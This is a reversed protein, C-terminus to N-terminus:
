KKLCFEIESIIKRTLAEPNDSDRISRGIVLYHAGMEIAKAPTMVRKQDQKNSIEARIGPTVLTLDPLKSKILQAEHASAVVGICGAKSALEARKLVLEKLSVNYGMDKLDKEDLSTLVTVGLIGLNSDGAGDAAAKLIDYNGHVTLFSVDRNAIQKVTRYVTKPIDYLKLDLMVEFGRELIMDVVEFGVSVFLELGVKYFTIYDGLKNLWKEVDEKTNVDLAFIIRKNIPINKMM